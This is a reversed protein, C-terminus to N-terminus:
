CKEALRAGLLAAQLELKAVSVIKKPAVIVAVKSLQGRRTFQLTELNEIKFTLDDSRPQWCVVLIKTEQVEQSLNHDEEKLEVDSPQLANRGNASNSQWKVLHFDGEALVSKARKALTIVEAETKASDLYEVM